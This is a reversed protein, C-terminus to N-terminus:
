KRVIIGKCEALVAYACVLPDAGLTLGSVYDTEIEKMMLTVIYKLLKGDLTIPKCNIYHQSKVGSSLTFEGKKYCKDILNSCLYDNM